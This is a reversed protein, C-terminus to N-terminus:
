RVIQIKKESDDRIFLPSSAVNIVLEILKYAMNGSKKSELSKEENNTRMYESMREVNSSYLSLAYNYIDKLIHPQIPHPLSNEGINKLENKLTEVAEPLYGFDEEFNFSNIKLLTRLARERLISGSFKNKVAMQVGLKPSGTKYCCPSNTVEDKFTKLIELNSESIELGTNIQPCETFKSISDRFFTANKEQFIIAEHLFELIANEIPLPVERIIIENLRARIVYFAGTISPPLTNKATFFDLRQLFMDAANKMEQIQQDNIEINRAIDM